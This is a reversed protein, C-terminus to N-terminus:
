GGSTDNEERDAARNKGERAAFLSRNQMSSGRERLSITAKRGEFPLFNLHGPEKEVGVKREEGKWGAKASINVSGTTSAFTKM